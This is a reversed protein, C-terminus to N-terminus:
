RKEESLIAVHTKLQEVSMGISKSILEETKEQENKLYAIETNLSQVQMLLQENINSGIASITWGKAAAAQPTLAANLDDDLIVHFTAGRKEAEIMGRFLFEYVKVAM